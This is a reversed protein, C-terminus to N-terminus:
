VAQVCAFCKFDIIPHQGTFWLSLGPMWDFDGCCALIPCFLSNSALPSIYVAVLITVAFVLMFLCAEICDSVSVSLSNIPLTTLTKLDACFVIAHLHIKVVGHAM